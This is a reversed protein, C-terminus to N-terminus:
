IRKYINIHSEVVKRIDFNKEANIRGKIGMSTCLEKDNLLRKIAKALSLSDRPPVLIGTQNNIIADKCGPVNTTVIAKGCASAECLAKPLGERYSPLVVISCSKYINAMNKKFGWYEINNERVNKNIIKLSIKDKAEFDLNGCIIFRSQGKLLKAAEIFELVGKSKVIRSPLLVIKKDSDYNSRNFKKLDVGSGKIIFSQDKSLNCIRTIFSKDTENQFIISIKKNSLSIKYLSCILFRRFKALVGRDVFIFGLGSISAIIKLKKAYFKSALCGLLVPKISIFHILDPKTKKILRYISFTTLFINLIGTKSRNILLPHTKIGFNKIENSVETIASGLHVDYGNNILEKAIEIRHSLLFKDTNVIFLFKKKSKKDRM